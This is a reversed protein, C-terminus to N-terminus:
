PRRRRNGKQLRDDGNKVPQVVMSLSAEGAPTKLPSRVEERGM